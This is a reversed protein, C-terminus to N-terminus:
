ARPLDNGATAVGVEALMVAVKQRLDALSGDNWIAFDALKLCAGVQQGEEAEGAGRDRADIRLFAELTAPDGPRQRERIRKFRVEPPADVGVLHLRAHQQLYRAEHPNRIGDIVVKAVKATDIKELTRQAWIAPGFTSRAENGIRQLDERSPPQVGHRAAEERVRDSLSFYAFGVEVLLSAVAGKGAGITGTLGVM